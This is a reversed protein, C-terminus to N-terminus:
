LVKIKKTIKKLGSKISSSIGNKYNKNIILTIKKSKLLIKKIKINM